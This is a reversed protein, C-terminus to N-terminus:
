QYAGKFRYRINWREVLEAEATLDGKRYEAVHNDLFLINAAGGSHRFDIQDLPLSKSNIEDLVANPDNLDLDESLEDTGFSYAYHINSDKTPGIIASHEPFRYDSIRPARVWTFAEGALSQAMAYIGNEDDPDYRGAAKLRRIAEEVAVSDLKGAHEGVAKTIIRLPRFQAASVMYVGGGDGRTPDIFSKHLKLVSEEGNELWDEYDTISRNSLYVSILMKWAVDQQDAVDQQTIPEGGDIGAITDACWPMWGDNDSRYTHFAIGINKLNTKCKANYAGEKFRLYMPFTISALVLIISMVVLLEMLTFGAKRYKGPMLCSGLPVSKGFQM